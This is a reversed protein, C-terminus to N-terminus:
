TNLVLDSMESKDRIMLIGLINEVLQCRYILQKMFDPIDRGKPYGQAEWKTVANWCGRKM